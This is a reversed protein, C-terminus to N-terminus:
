QCVGTTAFLQYKTLYRVTVDPIDGSGARYALARRAGANYAIIAEVDDFGYTSQLWDFYWAAVNGNVNPDFLDKRTLRTGNVQNFHKLCIPSIQYLGVGGDKAVAKPNNSSEICAIARMDVAAHAAGGVLLLALVIPIVVPRDGGRRRQKVDSFLDDPATMLLSAIMGIENADPVAKGAEWNRVTGYSVTLGAIRLRTAVSEYSLHSAARAKKFKKPDFKKV